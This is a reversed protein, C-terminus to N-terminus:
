CTKDNSLTQVEVIEDPINASIKDLLNEIERINIIVYSAVSLAEAVMIELMKLYEYLKNRGSDVTKDQKPLNKTNKLYERAVQLDVPLTEYIEDILKEVGRKNVAVYGRFIPLSYSQNIKSELEKIIKTSRFYM